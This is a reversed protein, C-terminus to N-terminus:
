RCKFFRNLIKIITMKIGYKKCYETCKHCLNVFNNKMSINNVAINYIYGIILKNKILRYNFLEYSINMNSYTLFQCFSKRINIKDLITLPFYLYQWSLYIPIYCTKKIPIIFYDKESKLYDALAIGGLTDWQLEFNNSIISFYKEFNTCMLKCIKNGKKAGILAILPFFKDSNYYGTCVFEHRDIKKIIPSLSKFVITDCDLWIGGYEYLLKFRFYDARHAIEKFKWVREDFNKIYKYITKETVLIINFDNKCKSVISKLCDKIIVPYTKTQKEWYLWITNIDKKM